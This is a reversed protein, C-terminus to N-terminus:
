DDYYAPQAELLLQHIVQKQDGSVEVLPMSEAQAAGSRGKNHSGSRTAVPAPKSPSYRSGKKSSESSTGHWGGQRPRFDLDEDDLDDSLHTQPNGTIRKMHLGQHNPERPVDRIPRNPLSDQWYPLTVMPVPSMLQMPAQLQWSPNRNGRQVAANNGPLLNMQSAFQKDNRFDQGNEGQFGEPRAFRRQNRLGKERAPFMGPEAMADRDIPQPSPPLDRAHIENNDGGNLRRDSGKQYRWGRLSMQYARTMRLDQQGHAFQCESPPLKCVGKQWERCLSTKTLDPRISLEEQGHAFECTNGNRCGTRYFKCMETKFFQSRFRDRKKNQLAALQEPDLQLNALEQRQRELEEEDMSPPFCAQQWAAVADSDAAMLGLVSPGWVAQQGDTVSTYSSCM